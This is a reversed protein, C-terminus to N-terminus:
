ATTIAPPLIRATCFADPASGICVADIDDITLEAADLATKAAEWALEKPTELARRVFRTMGAGVIGVRRGM